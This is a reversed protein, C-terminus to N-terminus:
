GREVRSGQDPQSRSRAGGPADTPSRSAGLTGSPASSRSSTTGGSEACRLTTTAPPSRPSVATWRVLALRNTVGQRTLHELILESARNEHTSAPVVLAAVPLSTVDVAAVRRAGKARGYPGGGDHFTLGGNSAGRASHTDIVVM